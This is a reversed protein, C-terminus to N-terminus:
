PTGLRPLTSTFRSAKGVKCVQEMGQQVCHESRLAQRKRCAREGVLALLVKLLRPQQHHSVRARVVLGHALRRVHVDRHNREAVGIRGHRVHVDGDRCVVLALVGNAHQVVDQRAHDQLRTARRATHAIIPQRAPAASQPAPTDSGM